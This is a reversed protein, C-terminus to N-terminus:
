RDTLETVDLNWRHVAERLQRVMASPDGLGTPTAWARLAQRPADPLLDGFQDLFGEVLEDAKLEALGILGAMWTGEDFSGLVARAEIPDQAGSRRALQDVIHAIYQRQLIEEA